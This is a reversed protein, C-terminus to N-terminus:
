RPDCWVQKMPDRLDGMQEDDDGRNSALWHDVPNCDVYMERRWASYSAECTAHLRSHGESPACLRAVNFSFPFYHSSSASLSTLLPNRRLFLNRRRLYRYILSLWISKPSDHRSLSFFLIYITPRFRPYPTQTFRPSALATLARVDGPTGRGLDSASRSWWTQEIAERYRKMVSLKQSISRCWEQDKQCAPWACGGTRLSSRRNLSFSFWANDELCFFFFSTCAVHICM